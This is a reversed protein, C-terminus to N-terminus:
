QVRVARDTKVPAPSFRSLVTNFAFWVETKGWSLQDSGNGSRSCSFFNWKKPLLGESFWEQRFSIKLLFNLIFFTLLVFRNRRRVQSVSSSSEWLWTIIRWSSAPWWRCWIWRKERPATWNWRSWWCIRGRSCPATFRPSFFRKKLLFTLLFLRSEVSWEAIRKDAKLVSCEIDIPHFRMGRLLLTEDLSGVVFVADHLELFMLVIGWLAMLSLFCFVQFFFSKENKKRKLIKKKMKKKWFKEEKKENKKMKKQFFIISHIYHVEKRDSPRPVVYFDWTALGLTHTEPIARSSDPLSTTMWSPTRGSHVLTDPHTTRVASGFRDLFFHQFEGLSLGSKSNQSM